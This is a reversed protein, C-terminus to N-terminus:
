SSDFQLVPKGRRARFPLYGVEDLAIRIDAHEIVGAEEAAPAADSFARNPRM